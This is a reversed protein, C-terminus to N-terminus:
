VTCFYCISRSNQCRYKRLSHLYTRHPEIDKGESYTYDGVVTHGIHHCHVRLQHRRGTGPALLVKTAPKSRWFGHELVILVTFSRRPKECFVSDSTCMKHNGSKERIDDGIPKDIVIHPKYIHGHVLALYFKQVNQNEFASSAAQAAKKNLAICIIGSTPYDLRHVFYFEHCLKPNVLGPLMKRLELQLTNKRDPNNSNIYMDYPKNVMLFNESRYVIEVSRHNENRNYLLRAISCATLCIVSYVLNCIILVCTYLFRNVKRRIM